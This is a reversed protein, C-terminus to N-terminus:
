KEIAKDRIYLDSSSIDGSKLKDLDISQQMEIDAQIKM